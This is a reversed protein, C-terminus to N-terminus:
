RTSRFLWRRDVTRDVDGAAIGIAVLRADRVPVKDAERLRQQRLEAVVLIGCNVGSLLRDLGEGGTELGGIKRTEPALKAKRLLPFAVHGSACSRRSRM